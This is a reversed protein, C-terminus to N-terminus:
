VNPVYKQRIVSSTSSRHDEIKSWFEVPCAWPSCAQYLRYSYHLCFSFMGTFRSLRRHNGRSNWDIIFLPNTQNVLHDHRIIQSKRKFELRYHSKTSQRLFKTTDKGCIVLPFTVSNSEPIVIYRYASM